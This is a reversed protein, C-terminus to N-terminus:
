LSPSKGSARGRRLVFDAGPIVILKDQPGLLEGVRREYDPRKSDASIVLQYRSRDLTQGHTWTRLHEAIDGRPDALPMVVAIEPGDERRSAGQEHATPAPSEPAQTESDGVADRSGDARQEAAIRHQLEAYGRGPARPGACCGAEHEFGLARSDAKWQMRSLRAFEDLPVDPPEGRPRIRSFLDVLAEAHARAGHHTVALDGNPPGM